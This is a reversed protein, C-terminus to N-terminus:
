AAVRAAWAALAMFDPLHTVAVAGVSAEVGSGGVVLAVHRPLAQRLQTLHEGSLPGANSISISIAVARARIDGALSAIEPVPTDTGLYLVRCRQSAAVLAAMQLGLAHTEGPLTAFVVVPGTAEPEFGTRLTRLLDEVRETFFHEHRVHLRGAHWADGVMEILPILRAHLFPMLGLREHEDRLLSTLAIGDFAVIADLFPSLEQEGPAVDGFHADVTSATSALLQDLQEDTAGIVTGARHGRALAESIRRLRAVNSSPYLRHGSPKREPVPFGYRAEWTRLTEIPIGTARSLAGISLRPEVQDGPATSIAGLHQPSSNAM